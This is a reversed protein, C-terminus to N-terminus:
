LPNRRGPQSPKVEPFLSPEALLPSITSLSIPSSEKSRGVGLGNIREFGGVLLVGDVTAVFETSFGGVALDAADDNNPSSEAAEFCGVGDFIGEATDDVFSGTGVVLVLAGREFDDGKSSSSSRKPSPKPLFSAGFGAGVLVSAFLFASGKDKNSLPLSVFFVTTEFAGAAAGALAAAELAADNSTSIKPSLSIGFFSAGFATETFTSSFFSEVEVM